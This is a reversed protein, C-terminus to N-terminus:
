AHHYWNHNRAITSNYSNNDHYRRYPTVRYTKKMISQNTVLRKFKREINVLCDNCMRRKKCFNCNNHKTHKIRTSSMGNGMIYMKKSSMDWIPNRDPIKINTHKYRHDNRFLPVKQSVLKLINTDITTELFYNDNSYVSIKKLNYRYDCRLNIRNSVYHLRSTRRYSLSNCKIKQTTLIDM